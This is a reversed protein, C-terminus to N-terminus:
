IKGLEYVTEYNDEEHLVINIFAREVDNMQTRITFEFERDSIKMWINYVWTIM